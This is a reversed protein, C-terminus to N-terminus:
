NHWNEKLKKNCERRLWRPELRRRQYLGGKIRNFMYNIYENYILDLVYFIKQFFVTKM